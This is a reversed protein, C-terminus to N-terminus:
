ANWPGELIGARDDSGDNGLSVVSLLYWVMSVFMLPGTPTVVAAGVRLAPMLDHARAKIRPAMRATAPAALTKAADGDASGLELGAAVDESSTLPVVSLEASSDVSSEVSPSRSQGSSESDSAVSDSSAAELQGISRRAVFPAGSEGVV